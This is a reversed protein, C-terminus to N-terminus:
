FILFGIGIVLGIVMGVLIDSLYHVGLMVRALAVSPAWLILVAGLWGPGLGTGLVALLFARAAHGSPFSHPDTRRYIAGWQGEPRQRRITFKMVMVVLATVLVAIIMEGALIKWFGEGKLYIGALLALWFWSDGSHALVMAVWRRLGPRDASRLGSSLRADTEILRQM